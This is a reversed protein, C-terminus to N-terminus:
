EPCMGGDINITQGTIWNGQPGALFVAMEAIDEPRGLRGLPIQSGYRDLQSKGTEAKRADARSTPIPGPCIANVNVNHPGMEQALIRTLVNMVSKTAAYPGTRPRELKSMVTSINIIRGGDGQRIMQRGFEQLSYFLGNVNVDFYRKWVDEPVDVLDTSDGGVAAAFNNVLIDVRGFAGIAKKLLESVEARSSVDVTAALCGGGSDIIEDSLSDVGRWGIQQEHLYFSASRGTGTVILNAGANAFSLAISRGIGNYRSCGLVVAVKDTLPKSEDTM